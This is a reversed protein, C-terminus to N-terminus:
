LYRKILDSRHAFVREDSFVDAAKATQATLPLLTQEPRSILEHMSKSLALVDEMPTLKGGPVETLLDAAYASEYGVIPTGSMLSEILNRPSERTLHCFMFVDLDQMWDLMQSKDSVFGRLEIQNALGRAEVFRMMDPLVPGDGLWCFTVRGKPLRKLLDEAAQLWQMPGKDPHARGAYGVRMTRGTTPRTLKNRLTEASIADTPKLHINHVVESHEPLHQYADFVSKGHFLGLRAGQISQETQRVGYWSYLRRAIDRPRPGMWNGHLENVIDLWVAYGRGQQAALRAGLSGWAGFGGLNAFCLYRHQPVLKAFHQRVEGCQKLHAAVAWACPLGVLKTNTAELWGSPDKFVHHSAAAASEVVPATVTMRTFNKQWHTLGNLAQAEVLLRGDQRMFPMPLDLLLDRDYTCAPSDMLCVLGFCLNDVCPEFFVTLCECLTASAGKM